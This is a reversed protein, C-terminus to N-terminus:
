LSYPQQTNTFEKIFRPTAGKEKEEQLTYTCLLWLDVGYEKKKIKLLM